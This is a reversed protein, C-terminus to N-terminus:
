NRPRSITLNLPAEDGDDVVAAAKPLIGSSSSASSGSPGARVTTAPILPHSAASAFPLWVPARSATSEAISEPPHLPLRPQSYAHGKGGSGNAGGGGAAASPNKRLLSRLFSSSSAEAEKNLLSDISYSSQRDYVKTPGGGGGGGLSGAHPAPLSHAAPLLPTTVAKAKKMANWSPSSSRDNLRVKEMDRLLRKRPSVLSDLAAAAATSPVLKKICSKNTARDALQSTLLTLSLRQISKWKVRCKVCESGGSHCREPLSHPRRRQKWAYLCRVQRSRKIHLSFEDVASSPCCQPNTNKWRTERPWPSSQSQVSSDDSVSFSASSEQRVTRCSPAPPPWYTKQTVPVWWSKGNECRDSLELIAKGDLYFQLRGGESKKHKNESNSEPPNPPPSTPSGEDEIQSSKESKTITESM